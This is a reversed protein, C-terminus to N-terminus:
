LQYRREVGPKKSWESLMRGNASSVLAENVEGAWILAQTAFEESVAQNQWIKELNLKDGYEDVIASFTYATINAQFARFGKLIRKHISKYAISIAAVKKFKESDLDELLRIQKEEVLSM